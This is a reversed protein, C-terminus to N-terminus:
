SAAPEAAGTTGSGSGHGSRDAAARGARPAGGAGAGDAPAPADLYAPGGLQRVQREIWAARSRLYRSPQDVRMRKPNPLVAALLAAERADIQAAPKGYYHRAAAEAGYVGDGFEALNAYVELIRQKPWLLEILVTFWAELGKRVWSRGSWLFLNKAVQQSITSAGRLPADGARADLVKGISELDFGHHHPFKQDEAAVLAIPLAPSIDALPVWRHQLAYGAEGARWAAIGRALMFASTPPDLFRLALIALLSLLVFALAGRLLWCLLRRLPSGPAVARQRKRQMIGRM